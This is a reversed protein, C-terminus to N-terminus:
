YFTSKKRFLALIRYNNTCLFLRNGEPVLLMIKEVEVSCTDM